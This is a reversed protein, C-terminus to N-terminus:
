TLAKLVLLHIFSLQAEQNFVHKFLDTNINRFPIKWPSLM